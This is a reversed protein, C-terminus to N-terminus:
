EYAGVRQLIYGATTNAFSSDEITRVYKLLYERLDADQVLAKTVEVPSPLGSSDDVTVSTRKNATISTRTPVSSSSSLSTPPNFIATVDWEVYVNYLPSPKGAGFEKVGFQLDVDYFQEGFAHKLRSSFFSLTQQRLKEYEEDSPESDVGDLKLAVCADSSKVRPRVPEQSPPPEEPEFKKPTSEKPEVSKRPEPKKPPSGSKKPEPKKPPPEVKKPEPKKPSPEVKKPEPKKPPPDVKKPEPKKPPPEVKKPEPKKPPPDVKKPEPKKPPPDVKKPELKKPPPEVKKPEPKKPPPEVKKPEPKKPPPEVKKPEPKKPPPEVKKPEPKKPPPEVKKPEPKKSEVSKRPEPKKPEVSKQPKATKPEASKRPKPKQPSERPTEKVPERKILALGNSPPEELVAEFPADQLAPPKKEKPKTKDMTVETVKQFCLPELTRMHHIIASYNCEVIMAMLLKKDPPPEDTKRFVITSDYKVCMNFREEPIGAGFQTSVEKLKIDTMIEPYKKKLLTFFFRRMLDSFEAIEEPSPLCAPPEAMIVLALFIPVNVSVFEEEEEDEGEEEAQGEGEGQEKEKEKEEEKLLPEPADIDALAVLKIAVKTITPIVEYISILYEKGSCKMILHFLQDPSPPDSSFTAFADLEFYLQYREDPKSMGAEVALVVLEFNVFTQPYEAKVIDAIREQTRKQFQEVQKATPPETPHKNTGFAIFFTPARVTGGPSGPDIVLRRVCVEVTTAFLSNPAVGRVYEVLFKNSDGEMMEHFVEDGTPVTGKGSFKAEGSVQLFMNFKSELNYNDEEDRTGFIRKDFSWDLGQFGSKSYVNKLWKKWFEITQKRLEECDQETPERSAGPLVLAIFFDPLQVKSSGTM